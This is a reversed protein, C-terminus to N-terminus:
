SPRMAFYPEDVPDASVGRALGIEDGSRWEITSCRTRLVPTRPPFQRVHQRGRPRVPFARGVKQRSSTGTICGPRSLDRGYGTVVCVQSVPARDLSPVCRLGIGGLALAHDLQLIARAVPPGVARPNDPVFILVVSSHKAAASTMEQRM